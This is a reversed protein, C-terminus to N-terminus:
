TDYIELGDNGIFNLLIAIKVEDPKIDKESAILYNKLQQTWKNCEEALNSNTFQIKGPPRFIEM